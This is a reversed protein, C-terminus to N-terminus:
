KFQEKNFYVLEAAKRICCAEFFDDTTKDIVIKGKHRVRARFLGPRDNREVVGSIGFENWKYIRKNKSQELYSSWKCNNKSYGLSNDIRDLTYGDPRPWMDNKFNKYKRWSECVNIGRGGYNFFYKNNPNTCRQIMAAWIWHFRKEDIDMSNGLSFARSAVRMKESTPPCSWYRASYSGPSVPVRRWAIENIMDLM